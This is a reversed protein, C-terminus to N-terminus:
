ESIAVSHLSLDGLTIVREPSDTANEKVPRRDVAMSHRTIVVDGVAMMM